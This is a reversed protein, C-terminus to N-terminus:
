LGCGGLNVGRQVGAGGEVGNRMTWTNAGGGAGSVCTEGLECGGDWLGAMTWLGVGVGRWDIASEMGVDVGKSM